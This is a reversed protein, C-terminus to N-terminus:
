GPHSGSSNSNFMLALDKGSQTDVLKASKQGGDMVQTLEISSM